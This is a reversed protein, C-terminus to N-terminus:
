GRRRRAIVAGVTIGYAVHDAVQPLLPLAPIRPHRRGVVGLDLAAIALGAAAGWAATHRRPLSAALAAAWGFSLGGHVVSAAIVLRSRRTEDPLLLSGAASTAAWPDAGTVLAHVTSPLGSITPAIVGALLADRM